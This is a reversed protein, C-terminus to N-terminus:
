PLPAHPMSAAASVYKLVVAAFSVRSWAAVSAPMTSFGVAYSGIWLGAVDSSRRLVTSARIACVCGTAGAGVAGGSDAAAAAAAMFCFSPSWRPPTCLPQVAFM